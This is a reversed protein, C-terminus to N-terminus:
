ERHLPLCKSAFIFYKHKLHYKFNNYLKTKNTNIINTTANQLAKSDEKKCFSFM